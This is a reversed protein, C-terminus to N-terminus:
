GTDRISAVSNTNHRKKADPLAETAQLIGCLFLSLLFTRNGTSRTRDGSGEDMRGQSVMGKKGLEGKVRDQLSADGCARGEADEVGSRFWDGEWM